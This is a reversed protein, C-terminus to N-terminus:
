VVDNRKPFLAEYTGESNNKLFTYTSQLTFKSDRVRAKDSSAEESRQQQKPWYEIRHQLVPYPSASRWKLDYSYRHRGTSPSTVQPRTPAGLVSSTSSYASPYRQTALNRSTVSPMSM